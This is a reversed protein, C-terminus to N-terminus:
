QVTTTNLSFPTTSNSIIERKRRGESFPNKTTYSGDSYSLTIPQRPFDEVVIEFGRLGQQGVPSYTLTCSNPDLSFGQPLSCMSCEYEDYLGYRCRVRDGDPDFVTLRYTRPCNRPIRLFPLMTAIPSRNPEGTDSRNGLNVHTMMMWVARSNAINPIWYGQGYYYYNPVPYRLEFPLNSSLHRTMMVENQCWYYGYSYSGITGSQTRNLSGCDGSLCTFGSQYCNYHAQKNRLEVVYTGDSSRGKPTFTVSGGYFRYYHSIAAVGSVLVLVLVLLLTLSAM